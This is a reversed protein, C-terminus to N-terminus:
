TSRGGTREPGAAVGREFDSLYKTELSRRIQDRAHIRGLRFGIQVLQWWFTNMNIRLIGPTTSAVPSIDGPFTLSDHGNSPFQFYIRLEHGWKNANGHLLVYHESGPVPTEGTVSRYKDEFANQAKEPVEADLWCRTSMYGITYAESGNLPRYASPLRFRAPSSSRRVRPAVPAPSSVNPLFDTEGKKEGELFRINVGADTVTEVVSTGYKTTLRQGVVFNV